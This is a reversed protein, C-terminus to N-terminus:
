ENIEEFDVYDGVKTSVKKKTGTTYIRVDPDDDQSAAHSTTNARTQERFNSYNARQEKTIQRVRWKLILTAVVGLIIIAFIIYAVFQVAGFLFSPAVIMLFLIFWLFLNDKIFNFM